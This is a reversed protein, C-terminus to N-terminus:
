VGWLLLVPPQPPAVFRPTQDSRPPTELQSQRWPHDKTRNINDKIKYYSKRYTIFVRINNHCKDRYVRNNYINDEQRM